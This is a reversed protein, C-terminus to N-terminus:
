EKEDVIRMLEARFDADQMLKKAIAICLAGSLTM